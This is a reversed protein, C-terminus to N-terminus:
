WEMPNVNKTPISKLFTLFEKELKMNKALENKFTTLEQATPLKKNWLLFATEEFSSHEALDEITYGCFTLTTDIISSISTSCAVIGELGKDIAGAYEEAM